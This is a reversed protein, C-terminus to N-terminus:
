GLRMEILQLQAIAQDALARYRLAEEKTFQADPGQAASNGLVRLDVLLSSMKADVINRNRLLRTLGLVSQVKPTLLQAKEALSRVAGEIDSRVELIAERPSIEATEEFDQKEEPTPEAEPTPPLRPLGAAAKEAQKLRFSFEWKGHKIRFLPLLETLKERFLWVSGFVAAPWALSVLSQFLSALFSVFSQFLSALFQYGDM